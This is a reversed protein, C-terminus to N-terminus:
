ETANLKAVNDRFAMLCSDSRMSANVLALSAARLSAVFEPARSLSNLKAALGSASGDYRVYHLDEVLGYDQYFTNGDDVLVAGCAMAEFAGIGPLGIIEAPCVVFSYTNYFAVLDISFFEKVQVSDSTIKSAWREVQDKSRRLLTGVLGRTVLAVAESSVVDLQPVFGGHDKLYKRQPQLYNTGFHTVFHHETIKFTISGTAVARLKRPKSPIVFFRDQVCFPLLGVEREYWPFQERFFESHKHLNTESIFRLHKIKSCLESGKPTNYVYHNLHILFKCRAEVVMKEYLVDNCCVPSAAFNDHFFCFVVDGETLTEYSYVIDFRNKDLNNIFLWLSFRIMRLLISIRSSIVGQRAVPLVVKVYGADLYHDLLYEYKVM